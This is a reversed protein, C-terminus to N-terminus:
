YHKLPLKTILLSEQIITRYDQFEFVVGRTSDLNCPNSLSMNNGNRMESKSEDSNLISNIIILTVILIILLFVLNEIRKEKSKFGNILKKYDM